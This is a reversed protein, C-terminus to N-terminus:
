AVLVVALAPHEGLREAEGVVTEAMIVPGLFMLRDAFAEAGPEVVPLEGLGGFLGPLFAVEVGAVEEAFGAVLGEEVFEGAAGGFRGGDCKWRHDVFTLGWLPFQKVSCRSFGLVIWI